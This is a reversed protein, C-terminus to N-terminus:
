KVYRKEWTKVGFHQYKCDEPKRQKNEKEKAECKISAKRIVIPSCFLHKGKIKDKDDKNVIWLFILNKKQLIM